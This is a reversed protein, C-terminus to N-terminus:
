GASCFRLTLSAVRHQMFCVDLSGLTATVKRLYSYPQDPLAVKSTLPLRDFEQKADCYTLKGVLCSCSRLRVSLEVAALRILLQCPIREACRVPWIRSSPTGLLQFLMSLTEAETKGPFLPSGRLLEAMICGVAWM